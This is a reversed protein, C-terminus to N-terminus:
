DGRAEARVRQRVGFERQRRDGAQAQVGGGAETNRIGDIVIHATRDQTFQLPSLELPAGPCPFSAPRAPRLDAVGVALLGLGAPAIRLELTEEAFVVLNVGVRVELEAQVAQESPDGGPDGRAALLPARSRDNCTASRAPRRATRPMMRPSSAISRAGPITSSRAPTPPRAPM